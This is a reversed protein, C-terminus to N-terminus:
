CLQDLYCCIKELVIKSLSNGTHNQLVFRNDEGEFVGESANFKLEGQKFSREQIDDSSNMSVFSLKQVSGDTKDYFVWHYKKDKPADVLDTRKVECILAEENELLFLIQYVSSM